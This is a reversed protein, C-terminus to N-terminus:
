QPGRGKCQWLRGVQRDTTLFTSYWFLVRTGCLLLSHDLLSFLSTHIMSLKLSDRDNQYPDVIEDWVASNKFKKFKCKNVTKALSREDNQVPCKRIKSPNQKFVFSELPLHVLNIPIPHGETKLAKKSCHIYSGWFISPSKGKAGAPKIKNCKRNVFIKCITSVTYKVLIRTFMAEFFAWIWACLEREHLSFTGLTFLSIVLQSKRKKPVVSSNLESSAEYASAFYCSSYKTMM